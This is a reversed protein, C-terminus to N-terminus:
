MGGCDIHSCLHPHCLGAAGAGCCARLYGGPCLSHCHQCGLVSATRWGATRCDMRYWQAVAVPQDQKGTHVDSCRYRLSGTRNDSGEQLGMEPYDMRCAAGDSLLCWLCSDADPGVNGQQYSVVGPFASEAGGPHWTCLGVHLLSQQHHPLSGYQSAQQFFEVHGSHLLDYCGSVFVKKKMIIIM